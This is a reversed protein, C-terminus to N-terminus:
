RHHQPFGKFVCGAPISRRICQQFDDSSAAAQGTLTEQEYAALSPMLLYALNDDWQTWSHGLLEARHDSLAKKLEVELRAEHAAADFQQM